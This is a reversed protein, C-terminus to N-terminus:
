ALRIRVNALFARYEDVIRMLSSRDGAKADLEIRRGLSAIYPFGYSISSGRMRHGLSGLRVFDGADLAQQLQELDKRRQALFTPILPELARPVLAEYDPIASV